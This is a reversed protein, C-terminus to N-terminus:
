IVEKVKAYYIRLFKNLVAIKEVNSAKGENKKKTMFEYIPCALKKNINIATMVEYGVNRLYKSDKKDTKGKRLSINSYKNM